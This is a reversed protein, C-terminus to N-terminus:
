IANCGEEAKKIGKAVDSFYISCKFSWSEKIYRILGTLSISVTLIDLTTIQPSSIMLAFLYSKISYNIM